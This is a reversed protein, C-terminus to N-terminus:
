FKLANLRRQTIENCAEIIQQEFGDVRDILKHALQDITYDKKDYTLVTDRTLVVIVLPFDKFDPNFSCFYLEELEQVCAFMNICQALYERPLEGTRTIKNHNAGGLCKIECGKKMDETIGDPSHGHTATREIFGAEVFPVGTENILEQRALPELDKGRQMAESIFGEDQLVFESRKESMIRDFDKLKSLDMDKSEKELAFGKATNLKLFLDASTGSIRAWRLSHWNIDGQIIDYHIM